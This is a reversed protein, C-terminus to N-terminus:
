FSPTPGLLDKIYSFSKHLLSVMEGEWRTEMRGLKDQKKTGSLLSICLFTGPLSHPM